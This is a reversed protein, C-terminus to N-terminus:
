FQCRKCACLDVMGTVLDVDNISIALNEFGDLVVLGLDPSSRELRGDLREFGSPHSVGRIDRRIEMFQMRRQDGKSAIHLHYLEPSWIVENVVLQTTGGFGDVLWPCVMKKNLEMSGALKSAM